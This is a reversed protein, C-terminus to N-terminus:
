KRSENKVVKHGGFKNRMAALLKESYPDNKRSRFRRFLSLAITEAPVASNVAYEVSWRGEGSDEVYGKISELEPDEGLAEEILELLWSRIISGHNWLKAIKDPSVRLSDFSKILEFGEAYAQMIAYEIGNHIMKTFHGSGTQGCYLYGNKQAIVKLYKEVAKFAKLDGGVMVCYGNEKGWLGGSVGADLFYIGKEKLSYYNRVSDTWKSNGGDVIIDGKSLIEGFRNIYSQTIEGAPLMIWVIKKGEIEAVDEISEVPHAVKFNKSMDVAKSYTRDFLVPKIKSKILRYAIGSGMRGLGVVVFKYNNNKM